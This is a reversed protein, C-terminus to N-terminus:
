FAEVEEGSGVYTFKEKLIIGYYSNTAIDTDVLIVKAMSM